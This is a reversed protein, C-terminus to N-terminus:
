ASETSPRRLPPAPRRDSVTRPDRAWALLESVDIGHPAHPYRAIRDAGRDLLAAAGAANGRLAHTLGVALQALGQWLEREDVPASKWAAELVEHAQFPYGADLLRQAEGLTEAPSLVLGDPLSPVGDAGRPLPRGLADRARANRPRGQEDRDRDVTVDEVTGCM